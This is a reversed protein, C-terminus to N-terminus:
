ESVEFRLFTRQGPPPDALQGSWKQIRDLNSSKFAHLQELWDKTEDTSMRATSCGRESYWAQRAKADLDEPKLRYDSALAHLIHRLLGREHQNFYLLFSNSERRVRM